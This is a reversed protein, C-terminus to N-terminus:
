GWKCAMFKPWKSLTGCRPCFSVMTISRRTMPHDESDFTVKGGKQPLSWHHGSQRWPWHIDKHHWPHSTTSESNICKESSVYGMGNPVKSDIIKRKWPPIYLTVIKSNWPKAEPGTNIPCSFDRWCDTPLHNEEWNQFIKLPTQQSINALDQLFISASEGPKNITRKKGQLFHKQINFDGPTYQFPAFHPSLSPLTKKPHNFM